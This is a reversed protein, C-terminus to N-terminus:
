GIRSPPAGHRNTQQIMSRSGREAVRFVCSLAGPRALEEPKRIDGRKLVHVPRPEKPPIYSGQPVFDNTAAYVFQSPPLQALRQEIDLRLWYEALDRRESESRLEGPKALVTAIKEAFRKGAGARVCEDDVPATTRYPTRARSTTQARIDM